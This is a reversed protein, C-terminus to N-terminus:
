AINLNSLSAARGPLPHGVDSLSVLDEVKFKM